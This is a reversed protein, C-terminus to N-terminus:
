KLIRRWSEVAYEENFATKIIQDRNYEKVSEDIAIFSDFPIKGVDNYDFIECQFEKKVVEYTGNDERCYFKCGTCLLAYATFTGQLRLNSFVAIDMRNMLSYYEDQSMLEKYLIVKNGFISAAKESVKEIYETTGGTALIIHIKINEDKYASLKELAEIHMNTEQANNCLLINIEDENTNQRMKFTNILSHEKSDYYHIVSCNRKVGYIQSIKDDCNYDIFAINGVNQLACKKIFHGIYTKLTKKMHPFAFFDGGWPIICTKKILGPYFTIITGIKNNWGHMIIQKCNALMKLANSRSSDFDIVNSKELYSMKVSGTKVGSTNYIMFYNSDDAFNRDIFEYFEQNTRFNNAMIHIIYDNKM